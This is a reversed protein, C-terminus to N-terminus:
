RNHPRKNGSCRCSGRVGTASPPSWTSPQPLRNADKPLAEELKWRREPHSAARLEAYPVITSPGVDRAALRRARLIFGPMAVLPLEWARPVFETM